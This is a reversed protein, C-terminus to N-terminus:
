IFWRELKKLLKYLIAFFVINLIFQMLSNSFPYATRYLLSFVIWQILMNLFAYISFDRFTVIFNDPTYLHLRLFSIFKSSILWTVSTIGLPLNNFIDFLLGFIFIAFYQVDEQKIVLFFFILISAINPFITVISFFKIPVASFASFFVISFYLLFNRVMSFFKNNGNKFIM